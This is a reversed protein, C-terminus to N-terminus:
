LKNKFKRKLTLILTRFLKDDDSSLELNNNFKIMLLGQEIKFIESNVRKIDNNLKKKIDLLRKYALMRENFDFYIESKDM